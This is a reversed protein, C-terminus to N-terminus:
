TIISELQIMNLSEIVKLSFSKGRSHLLCSRECQVEEDEISVSILAVKQQSQPDTERPICIGLSEKDPM